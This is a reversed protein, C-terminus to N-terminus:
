ESVSREASSVAKDGHRFHFGQSEFSSAERYVAEYFRRLLQKHRSNSAVSLPQVAINNGAAFHVIDVKERNPMVDSLYAIAADVHGTLVDPVLLASSSKEVVTEGPDLQKKMLSEYIGDRDLLRKTLAGITCQDPQGISVRIGPKLLDAPSSVLASGKPM